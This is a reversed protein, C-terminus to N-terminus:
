VVQCASVGGRLIVIVNEVAQMDCDRTSGAIHPALVVNDLRLFPSEPKLPEEGFVDLGAAAIRKERLTLCLAEEDVIPGRSTNVLIARERMLRLDREGILGRTEDNLPVHISVFDAEAMLQTLPRYELSLESELETHRVVDYYLVKMDFGKVRKAVIGGIHGLGVIGLTKRFLSTGSFLMRDSTHKWMRNKVYIHAQPIMRAAALMLAVTMDAVTEWLAPTLTVHIGHESAADLDIERANHCSVVKLRHAESLIERDFRPVNHLVGDYAGIMNRLYEGDQFTHSPVIDVDAVERLRALADEHIDLGLLVRPRDIM